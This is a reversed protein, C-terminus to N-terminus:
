KGRGPVANASVRAAVILGFRELDRQLGNACEFSAVFGPNNEVIRGLAIWGNWQDPHKQVFPELMAAYARAATSYPPDATDDVDLAQGISVEYTGNENRVAFIPLLPARTTRALHFPGTAVRLRGHLFEADLTRRGTEAVAISVVQNDALRNRLTELATSADNNEIVVRGALFRDEVALWLPNLYRVGFPSVSFGHEPRSLHVPAFGAQRLALPVILLRHAFDSIWLIAGTGRGLAAALNELGELHIAPRWYRGPRIMALIQMTMELSRDQWQQYLESAQALTMHDSLVHAMVIDTASPRDNRHGRRRRIARALPWLQEIPVLWSAPLLALLKASEYLAGLIRTSM